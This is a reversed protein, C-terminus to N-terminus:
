HAPVLNLLMQNNLGVLKDKMASEEIGKVVALFDLRLLKECRRSHVFVFVALSILYCSLDLETMFERPGFEDPRTVFIQLGYTLLSIGLLAALYISPFRVFVATTITWMAFSYASFHAKQCVDPANPQPCSFTNVIGCVFLIVIILIISVAHGASTKTIFQSFTHFYDIYLMLLIFFMVTLAGVILALSTILRPMVLMHYIGYVVLFFISIALSPIFWHDTEKHYETELGSNRFRQTVLSIITSHGDKEKQMDFKEQGKETKRKKNTGMTKLTPNMAVVSQLLRNVAQPVTVLSFRKNVPFLEPSPLHGYLRWGIPCKEMEFEGTTGLFRRTENSVYVGPETANSQMLLANDVVTGIVDYHWKSVGVIGATIPGSDIGM